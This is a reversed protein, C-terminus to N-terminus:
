KRRRILNLYHRTAELASEFAGEQDTKQEIAVECAVKAKELLFEDDHLFGLGLEETQGYWGLCFHSIGYSTPNYYLEFFFREKKSAKQNKHILLRFEGCGDIHRYRFSGSPQQDQNRKM